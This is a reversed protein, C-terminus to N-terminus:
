DQMLRAIENASREGHPITKPKPDNASRGSHPITM